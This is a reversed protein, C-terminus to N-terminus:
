YKISGPKNEPTDLFGLVGGRFLLASVGLMSPVLEVRSFDQAPVTSWVGV